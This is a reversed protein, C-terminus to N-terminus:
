NAVSDTLSKQLSSLGSIALCDALNAANGGTSGTLVMAVDSWDRDM